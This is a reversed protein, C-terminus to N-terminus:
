VSLSITDMVFASAGIPDRINSSPFREVVPDLAELEAAFDRLKVADRILM